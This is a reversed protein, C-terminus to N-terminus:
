LNKHSLDEFSELARLQSSWGKTLLVKAIRSNKRAFIENVIENVLFVSCRSKFNQNKGDDCSNVNNSFPLISASLIFSKYMVSGLKLRGFSSMAISISSKFISLDIRDFCNGDSRYLPM